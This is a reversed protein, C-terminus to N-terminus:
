ASVRFAVQAYADPQVLIVDGLLVHMTFHRQASASDTYIDDISVANWHPCVATRMGSRGSRHLIAQQVSSATAPMRKNTWWGGFKAAAYDAFATDGLDQGEADRFTKASLRYTDPGCVIGVENMRSAWLGDIGSAFADVFADFGAVGAEPADPDTLRQLMGTLNPAQGDGNLAQKDLEDSLVLSLNERLASEFNAQGVAAIDELTLSLRASVRKPTATTVTFGAATSEQATGKAKAGATLPTTITATAYTGSKVRPMDIGLRPAVSAAFAMPRIPDLNVGVTGPAGTAADARTERDGNRGPVDWLELPIGDAIGAADRLEAEAGDVLRGRLAASLYAGLSARSRLEIRERAEADPEAPTKVEEGEALIAAQHRTELDAYETQLSAAESRIEDTFADGELGSIENLRKRVQSLRLRIKQATTM